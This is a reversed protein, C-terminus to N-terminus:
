REETGIYFGIDALIVAVKELLLGEATVIGARAFPEIKGAGVFSKLIVEDAEYHVHVPLLLFLVRGCLFFKQLILDHM